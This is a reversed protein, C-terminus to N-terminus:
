FIRSFFPKLCNNILQVSVRFSNNQSRGHRRSPCKTKQKKKFCNIKINKQVMGSNPAKLSLFKYNKVLKKKKYIVSIQIFYYLLVYM